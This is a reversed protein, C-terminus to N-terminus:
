HLTVRINMGYEDWAWCEIFGLNTNGSCKNYLILSIVWTPGQNNVQKNEKGEIVANKM